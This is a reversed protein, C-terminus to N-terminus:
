CPCIAPSEKQGKTPELSLVCILLMSLASVSCISVTEAQSGTNPPPLEPYAAAAAATPIKVM